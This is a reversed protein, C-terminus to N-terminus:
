VRKAQRDREKIPKRPMSLGLWPGLGLRDIVVLALLPLLLGALTGVSLLVVPDRLPPIKMLVARVGAAAIIHMVYIAMSNRGFVRLTESLVVPGINQAVAVTVLIGALASPLLAEYALGLWYGLATLALFALLGLLAVTMSWHRFSLDQRAAWVGLGYFLFGRATDHFVSIDHSGNRTIESAVYVAFGLGLVLRLDFRRTFVFIAQSLFLSYLFWYPAIPQWGIALLKDLTFDGNTAGPLSLRIVGEIVSWLFYPYVILMLKSVWFRKAGKRYSAEAFLGSLLFFLPMHFSYIAYDLGWLPSGTGMTESSAVGRFVHGYVVLIIGIGRAVDVWDLRNASM